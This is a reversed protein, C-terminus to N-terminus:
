PRQGPSKRERLPRLNGTSALPNIMKALSFIRQESYSYDSAECYDCDGRARRHKKATVRRSQRYERLLYAVHGGLVDEVAEDGREASGEFEDGVEAVLLEFDLSRSLSEVAESARRRCGSRM